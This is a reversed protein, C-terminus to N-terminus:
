PAGLLLDLYGDAIEQTSLRGGPRCWIATHNVMGLLAGLEIRPDRASKRDPRAQRLADQIIREFARAPRAFRGGAPIM